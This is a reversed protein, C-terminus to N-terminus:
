GWVLLPPVLVVQDISICTVVAANDRYRASRQRHSSVLVQNSVVAPPSHWVKRGAKRATIATSDQARTGVWM